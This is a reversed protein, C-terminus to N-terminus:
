RWCNMELAMKQKNKISTKLLWIGSGYLTTSRIISIYIKTKTEKTIQKDWLIGDLDSIAMKGKKM